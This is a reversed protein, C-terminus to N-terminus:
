RQEQETQMARIGRQALALLAKGEEPSFVMVDGEQKAREDLVAAAKRLLIQLLQTDDEDKAGRESIELDAADLAHLLESKNMVAEGALWRCVWSSTHDCARGIRDYTARKFARVLMGDHRRATATDPIAAGNRLIAPVDTVTLDDLNM